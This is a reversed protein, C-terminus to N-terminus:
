SGIPFTRVPDIGSMQPTDTREVYLNARQSGWHTIPILRRHVPAPLAEYSNPLMAVFLRGPSDLREALAAPSNTHSAGGESYFEASYRRLNYYILSDEEERDNLFIGVLERETRRPAIQPLLSGILGGGLLVALSTIAWWRPFRRLGDVSWKGGGAPDILGALVMALAPLATLPYSSIVNRSLTYFVLPWVAWLLLHLGRGQDALALPLAERWRRFPLISLAFCTPFTAALWFLWITGPPTAHSHGYLNGTWGSITFQKWGQSLFFYRSFGPTKTEALLFWPVVLMLVLLTGSIWPLSHWARRWNGTLGCWLFVPPLALLLAPPGDALLGIALGIFFAHGQHRSGGTMAARFSVMSLTIGILFVPDTMVAASCYYFLPMTLLLAAAALGELPCTERATGHAVMALVAMAGGFIFVRAGFENAGFLDIGLASLWMSLPPDAWYPVGYDFQPTIWDGTEVMKRSIEAHRAESSDLLPSAVMFLARSAILIVVLLLLGRQLSIKGFPQIPSVTM